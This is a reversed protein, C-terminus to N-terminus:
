DQKWEQFSQIITTSKSINWLVQIDGPCLSSANAQSWYKYNQIILYHCNRPEQQHIHTMLSASQFRPGKETGVKEEYNKKHPLFHSCTDWMTMLRRTSSSIYPSKFTICCSLSTVQLKLKDYQVLYESFINLMVEARM